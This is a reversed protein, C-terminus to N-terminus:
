NRWKHIDHFRQSPTFLVSPSIGKLSSKHAYLYGPYAVVVSPATEQWVEQFQRYADKRVEIDNTTRGKAILEDSVTDEFNALNLGASGMQSSHWGFYPDPDAGQDWGAIAAEYRREQLFDRRLVSFTTSAVTARIGFPELQRAIEGAIQMRVPDNDTRITFRFEAGDKVLIGTTPHSKWGASELLRRAETINTGTGAYEDAYAWSGPTVASGSAVAVGLFVRDVVQQRDVLLSLAKRVRVDQFYAAQANNLYLIVYASRTLREVKIGKLRTLNTVQAESLSDRVMLGDVDGAELARLASSYDPYFLLRIEPLLPMGLHYSGNAVLRAERSDLSAVKFPGSGVPLANFPADFLAAASLMGLLHEPLIGVTVNRALFPASPQKLVIVVTAQDPTEVSVGLWGEALAPDGKFDRDTLVRITFAVDASTVAQGDSWLADKRIKFTFTRGEDSVQPLDALDPLLRGDPGLRLLGSFVLGSLDADVDNTNAFLPNVRQWTGAVGERYVEGQPGIVGDSDSLGLYLALAAFLAAAVLTAALILPARRIHSESAM